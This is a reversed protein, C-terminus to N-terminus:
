VQSSNTSSNYSKSAFNGKSYLQKPLLNNKPPNSSGFLEFCRRLKKEQDTPERSSKPRGVLTTKNTADSFSSRSSQIRGLFSPSSAQM